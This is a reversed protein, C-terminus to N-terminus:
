VGGEARIATERGAWAATISAAAGALDPPPTDRGLTKSQIVTGAADLFNYRELTILTSVPPTGRPEYAFAISVLRVQAAVQAPSITRPM